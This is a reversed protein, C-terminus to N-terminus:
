VYFGFLEYLLVQGFFLYELSALALFPGFALRAALLGPEVQKAIPDQEFEAM